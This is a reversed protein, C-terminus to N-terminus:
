RSQVLEASRMRVALAVAVCSLIVAVLLRGM